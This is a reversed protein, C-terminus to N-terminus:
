GAKSGAKTGAAMVQPLLDGESDTTPSFDVWGSSSGGRTQQRQQEGVTELTPGEEAEVDIGPSNVASTLPSFDDVEEIDDDDEEEDEEEIILRSHRRPM